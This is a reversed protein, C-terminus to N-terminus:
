SIREESFRPVLGLVLASTCPWSVRWAPGIPGTTCRRCVRRIVNSPSGEYEDIAQHRFDNDSPLQVALEQFGPYCTACPVLDLVAAQQISVEEPAPVEDTACDCYPDGCRCAFIMHGAGLARCKPDEHFRRGHRSVYVSDKGETLSMLAVATRM